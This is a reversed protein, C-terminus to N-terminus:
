TRRSASGQPAGDEKWFCCLWLCRPEASTAAVRHRFHAPLFLSDGAGLRLRGEETEIEAKGEILILWENEPQDYWFGDPSREGESLIREFRIGPACFLEECWEEGRRKADPGFLNPGRTVGM